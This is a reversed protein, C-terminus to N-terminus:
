RSQSKEARERALERELWREHVKLVVFGGLMVLCPLIVFAFWMEPTMRRAGGLPAKRDPAIITATTIWFLASVALGGPQVKTAADGLNLFVAVVPAVVGM